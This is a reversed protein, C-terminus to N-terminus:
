RNANQLNTSAGKSAVKNTSERLFWALALDLTQNDPRHGGEYNELRIKEFGTQHMSHKVTAHQEPTAIPDTLGSSLFIPVQKFQEGPQSIKLGLSALDENCGGMFMGIVPYNEKMMIAGIMGSRKAGGSFGACAVPWKKSDPWYKHVYELASSLMAWGWNFTDQEAKSPPGDAGLVVWGASLAVGTYASVSRVSSGGSPASVILLPWTKRPDFGDPVAIAVKVSQITQGRQNSEWQARAAPAVYFERVKNPEIEVLGLKLTNTQAPSDATLLLFLLLVAAGRIVYCQHITTM